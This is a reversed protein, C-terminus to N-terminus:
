QGGNAKAVLGKVTNWNRTTGRVGFRREVLDNLPGSGADKTVVSFVISDILGIMSIGTQLSLPMPPINSPKESMFTAFARDGESRLNIFPDNDVLFRIQDLTFIFVDAKSENTQELQESILRGISGVDIDSSSFIVNGSQRYSSVNKLGVKELCHVLGGMKILSFGGVNIARLFAVYRIM